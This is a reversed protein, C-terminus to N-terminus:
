LYNAPWQNLETVKDSKIQRVAIQTECSYYPLPKSDAPVSNLFLDDLINQHSKCNHIFSLGSRVEKELLLTLLIHGCQLLVLACSATPSAM